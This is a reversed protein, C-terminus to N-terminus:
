VHVGSGMFLYRHFSPRVELAIRASGKLFASTEEEAMEPFLLNGISGRPAPRWHGAGAFADIYMLDLPQGKMATAYAQLYAGLMDLKERTWDGGFLHRQRATM